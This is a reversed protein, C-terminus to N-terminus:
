EGYTCENCVPCYHECSSCDMIEEDEDIEEDNKEEYEEDAEECFQEFNKDLDLYKEAIEEETKTEFDTLAKNLLAKDETVFISINKINKDLDILENETLLDIITMCAKGENQAHIKFIDTNKNKVLVYFLKDEEREYFGTDELTNLFDLGLIKCLNIITLLNPVQREGDEIRKLETDSIDVIAATKRRSYGKKERMTKFIKGLKMYDQKM